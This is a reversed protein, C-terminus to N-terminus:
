KCGVRKERNKNIRAEGDVKGVAPRESSGYEGLGNRKLRENFADNWTKGTTSKPYADTGNVINVPVKDMKLSLAADLRRNDFSIMKGDRIIVNLPEGIWGKQTIVKAYDNPSVWSQSFNIAGPDILTTSLGL